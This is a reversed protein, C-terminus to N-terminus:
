RLSWQDYLDRFINRINGRHENFLQQLQRDQIEHISLKDLLDGLLPVSTKCEHLTPITLEQHSTVLLGELKLFESMKEPILDIGDVFVDKINKPITLPMCVIRGDEIRTVVLQPSHGDRQAIALVELLLTTKGSGHAGVIAGRKGHDLWGKYVEEPSATCYKLAEIARSRFPNDAARM